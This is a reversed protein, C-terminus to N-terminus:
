SGSGAVGILPLRDAPIPTAADLLGFEVLVRIVSARIAEEQSRRLPGYLFEEHQRRAQDELDFMAREEAAQRAVNQQLQEVPSLPKPPDPNKRYELRGDGGRRVQLLKASTLMARAGSRAPSDHEPISAIQGIRVELETESMWEDPLREALKEVNVSM